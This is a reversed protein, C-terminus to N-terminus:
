AIYQFLLDIISTDVDPNRLLGDSFQVVIRDLVTRNEDKVTQSIKCYQLSKQTPLYIVARSKKRSLNFNLM